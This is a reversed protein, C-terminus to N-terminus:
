SAAEEPTEAESQADTSPAETQPRQEAEIANRLLARALLKLDPEDRRIGRVIIKVEKAM